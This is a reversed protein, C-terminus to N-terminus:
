KLQNVYHDRMMWSGLASLAERHDLKESELIFTFIDKAGYHKVILVTEQVTPNNGIIIAPQGKLILKSSELFAHLRDNASAPTNFVFELNHTPINTASSINKNINYRHLLATMIEDMTYQVPFTEHPKPPSTKNFLIMSCLHTLSHSHKPYGVIVTRQVFHKVQDLANGATCLLDPHAGMFILVAKNEKSQESLKTPSFTKATRLFLLKFIRNIIKLTNPSKYTDDQINLWNSKLVNSLPEFHLHQNTQDIIPINSAELLQNILDGHLAITPSFGLMLYHKEPTQPHEQSARAMWPSSLALLFFAIIVATITNSREIM